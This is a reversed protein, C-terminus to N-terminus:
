TLWLTVSIARALDRYTPRAERAHHHTKGVITRILEFLENLTTRQGCAVNFVQGVAHENATSAALINTQVANEVFCFDRSTEGDGNIYVQEGRILGAFWRPIVAAYPGEPDQRPGFLNFYRLGISQFGYVRDFTEAYAENTQKTLAYPSLPRGTKEEVKPLDPHDGYVSSSTAYVFRRVNNDKAAVLMNLFGVVNHENTAIPNEVSRPVSGLAAQHLVYDVRHCAKRCTEVDRM